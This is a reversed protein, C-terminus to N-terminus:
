GASCEEGDVMRQDGLLVGHVVDRPEPLHARAHVFRDGLRAPEIAFFMIGGRKMRRAVIACIRCNMAVGGAFFGNTVANASRMAAAFVAGSARRSSSRAWASFITAACTYGAHFRAM